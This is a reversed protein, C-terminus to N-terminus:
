LKQFSASRKAAANACGCLRVAVSRVAIEFVNCALRLTSHADDRVLWIRRGSRNSTNIPRAAKWLGLSGRLRVAVLLKSANSNPKCAQM